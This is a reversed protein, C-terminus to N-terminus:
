WAAELVATLEEVTPDLGDPARDPPVDDVAFRAVASLDDREVPDLDRLRTPLGLGDRVAAVAEVIGAAIGDDTPDWDVGLAEALVARRAEVTELVYRLVHPVMVAHVLGQQVSYRRAFGHGVAHVISTQRRFQVLIMGQVAREMTEPDGSDDGLRSLAHRLFRLGRVATADTVPTAASSYVTEVGKDFGNMASGALAGMPTTEFLNPDYFSAAPTASGSVRIPQGTPSDTATLVVLSGGESVDAGAFTTPVVVIPTVPGDTTVPQVGGERAAARLASLSRGDAALASMQRAVDLSSGGGVGVLVDADVRRMAEIGEYAAGVAKEPTTGDFVGALRDGLGARVPEMLAENAGVNSGCIVLARNLGRDALADALGDICGRGYVLDTGFYDFEFSDTTADM